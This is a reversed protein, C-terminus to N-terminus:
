YDINYWPCYIKDLSCRAEAIIQNMRESPLGAHGIQSGDAGALTVDVLQDPIELGFRAM